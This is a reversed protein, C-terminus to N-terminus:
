LTITRLVTPEIVQVNPLSKILDQASQELIPFTKYHCPIITKFNFYKKAAFAARSMNMTFHGGASLLGIEPNHLEGFWEMDAMIDTDGSFYITRNKYAIMYGM